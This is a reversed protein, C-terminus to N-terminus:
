NWFQFVLVAPGTKQLRPRTWNCDKQLRSVPSWLVLSNRLSASLKRSTTVNQKSKFLTAKQQQGTERMREELAIQTTYIDVIHSMFALRTHFQISVRLFSALQPSGSPNSSGQRSQPPSWPQKFSKHLFYISECHCSSPLLWPCHLLPRPHDHKQWTSDPCPLSTSPHLPPSEFELVKQEEKRDARTNLLKTHDPKKIGLPNLQLQLQDAKEGSTLLGSQVAFLSCVM